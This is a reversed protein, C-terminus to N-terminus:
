HYKFVNITVFIILTVFTSFIELFCFIRRSGPVWKHPPSVGFADLFKKGLNFFNRKTGFSVLINNPIM